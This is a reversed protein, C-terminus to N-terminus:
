QVLSSYRAVQISPSNLTMENEYLFKKSFVSKIHAEKKEERNRVVKKQESAVGALM